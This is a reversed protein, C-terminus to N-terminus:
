LLEVGFQNLVCLLLNLFLERDSELLLLNVKLLIGAKQLFHIHVVIDFLLFIYVPDALLFNCMEIVHDLMTPCLLKQFHVPQEFYAERLWAVLGDLLTSM